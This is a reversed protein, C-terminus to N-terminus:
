HAITEYIVNKNLRVAILYSHYHYLKNTGDLGDHGMGENWQKYRADRM